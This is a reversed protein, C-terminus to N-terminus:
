APLTLARVLQGDFAARLIKGGQASNAPILDGTYSLAHHFFALREQVVANPHVVWGKLFWRLLDSGHQFTTDGVSATLTADIGAVLTPVIHPAPIHM